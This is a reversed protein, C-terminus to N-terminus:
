LHLTSKPIQLADAAKRVSGLRYYERVANQIDARSYSRKMPVAAAQGWSFMKLRGFGKSVIATVVM